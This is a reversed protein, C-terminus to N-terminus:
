LVNSGNIILNVTLALICPLILGFVFGLGANILTDKESIQKVVSNIVTKM